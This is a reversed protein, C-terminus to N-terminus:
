CFFPKDGTEYGYCIKALIAFKKKCHINWNVSLSIIQVNDNSSYKCLIKMSPVCLMGQITKFWM